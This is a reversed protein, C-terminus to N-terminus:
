GRPRITLHLPHVSRDLVRSHSQEAVVTVILRACREGVEERGIAECESPIGQIAERGVFADKCYPCGLRLPEDDDRDLM